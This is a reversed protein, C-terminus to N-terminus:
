AEEIVVLSICGRNLARQWRGAQERTLFHTASARDAVCAATGFDVTEVGPEIAIYTPSGLGPHERRLIFPM